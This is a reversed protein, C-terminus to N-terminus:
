GTPQQFEVAADDLWSRLWALYSRGVHLEFRPSPDDLCELTVAAQAFRTRIALGRPFCRPHFDIGCGKALLERAASGEICLAKLAFSLDVAAIDCAKLQPRLREVLQPGTLADSIIWWEGPALTLVRMDRGGVGECPPTIPASTLAYSTLQVVGRQPIARIRVAADPM